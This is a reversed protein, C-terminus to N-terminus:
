FENFSNVQVSPQRKGSRVLVELCPQNITYDLVSIDTKLENVVKGFLKEGQSLNEENILQDFISCLALAQANLMENKERPCVLYKYLTSSTMSQEGAKLRLTMGDARVNVDKPVNVTVSNGLSKIINRFGQDNAFIYRDIKVGQKEVASKLGQIGGDKYQERLNNNSGGATIDLTKVSLKLEDMDAHVVACLELADDEELILLFNASGGVEPLIMESGSATTEETPKVKDIGIMKDKDGGSNLVLLMISLGGFILVFSIFAALFAGTKKTERNKRTEFHLSNKKKLPDRDRNM